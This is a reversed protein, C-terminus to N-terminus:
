SWPDASPGFTARSRAVILDGTGPQITPENMPM